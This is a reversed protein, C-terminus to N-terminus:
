PRLLEGSILDRIQSPQAGELTKGAMIEDLEDGLKLQVQLRETIAPQGARNASTSVIPIGAATCLARAVPHGPVRIAVSERGGTVWEPLKGNHPVVWTFAGPWSETMKYRQESTLRGLWPELQEFSGGILILGKEVPRQKIALLRAVADPNWPDCGLGWVGETPYAIVGGNVLTRAAQDIQFQQTPNM